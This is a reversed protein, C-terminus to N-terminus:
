RSRTLERPPVSLEAGWPSWPELLSRVARRIRRPTPRGVVVAAGLTSALEATRPGLRRTLLLTPPRWGLAASRRLARAGEGDPTAAVILAHVRPRPIDFVLADEAYSLLRAGDSVAVVDCGDARLAAELRRTLAEDTRVM